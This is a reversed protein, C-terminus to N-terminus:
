GETRLVCGLRVAVYPLMLNLSMTEPQYSEQQVVWSGGAAKAINKICFRNKYQVRYISEGGLAM